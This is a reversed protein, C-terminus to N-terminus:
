LKSIDDLNKVMTGIAAKVKGADLSSVQVFYTEGTPTYTFFVKFGDVVRNFTDLYVYPQSGTVTYNTAM